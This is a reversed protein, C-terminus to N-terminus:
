WEKVIAQQLQMELTKNGYNIYL